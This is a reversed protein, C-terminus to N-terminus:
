EYDQKSFLKKCNSCQYVYKTGIPYKSSEGWVKYKGSLVLEHKCRLFFHFYVLSILFCIVFALVVVVLVNNLM